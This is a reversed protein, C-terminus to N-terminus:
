GLMRRLINIRKFVTHSVVGAVHLIILGSLLATCIAHMQGFTETLGGKEFPTPLFILNFFRYGHPVMLFGSVLVAFITVYLLNHAGRALKLQKAELAPPQPNVRVFKWVARLPFLPILLTALSMSFSSLADHLPRDDIWNLAYGVVTAYIISVAFIWHLLRTLSDYRDSAGAKRNQLPM